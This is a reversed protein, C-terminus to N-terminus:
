VAIASKAESWPRQGSKDVVAVRFHYRTGATLGKQIFKSRTSSQVIVWSLENTPDTSMQFIYAARESSRCSVKLEGSTDTGKVEFDPKVRVAKQKVEMAASLIIPEAENSNANAIGEVYAALSKLALELDKERLYMVATDEVGGTNKAILAEELAKTLSTITDLSPAPTAFNDNGTMAAVIAKAKEIKRPISLRGFKLAINTKM